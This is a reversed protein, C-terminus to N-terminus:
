QRSHKRLRFAEPSVVVADAPYGAISDFEISM